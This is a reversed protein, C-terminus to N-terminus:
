ERKAPELKHVQEVRHQRPLRLRRREPEEGAAEGADPAEVAVRATALARGAEPTPQREGQASSPDGARTPAALRARPSDRSKERSTVRSLVASAAEKM